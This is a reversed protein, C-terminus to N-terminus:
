GTNEAGTGDADRQDMGTSGPLGYTTSSRVRTSRYKSELETPRDGSDVTSSGYRERGEFEIRKHIYASFANGGPGIWDSGQYDLYKVCGMYVGDTGEKKPGPLNDRLKGYTSQVVVGCGDGGYAKWMTANETEGSYWCSAYMCQRISINSNSLMKRLDDRTYRGESNALMETIMVETALQNVKTMSGEFPDGLMDARALYLTKSQLLVILKPLDMYRWVKIRDDKPQRPQFVLHTTDAPMTAISGAVYCVGLRPALTAARRPEDREQWAALRHYVGRRGSMSGSGIRGADFDVPSRYGLASHRRRRNYFEEIFEFVALRAEARNRFSSRELLECELTAFFSECLANDYADGVSGMSPRVSAEKCRMGFAISTYQSGQDSHHIM